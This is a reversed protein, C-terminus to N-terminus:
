QKIYKELSYRLNLMAKSHIQCIRSESVDMVKAIDSFKLREYYYLSIVLKQQEKLCDIANKLIESREKIYIRKETEWIGSSDESSSFDTEGNLILEEFSLASASASDAM